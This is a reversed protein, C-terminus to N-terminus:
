RCTLMCVCSSDLEEVQITPHEIDFLEHLDQQLRLLRENDLQHGDTVVHVTLATETTSIAWIHLDHFGIIWEQRNLHERVAALDVNRPVADMSLDLSDRFLTWSSAFIVLAIVLSTAPDLWLWGTFLIVAGALAVGLSIAADAAMHVFAARINLDRKRDALFLLATATNIVVGVAAVIIVTRGAIPAPQFFREIAEWAIAGLAVLLLATSLASAMITSRKMGYTRKDTPPRSALYTAGWAILLAFVDSLNHGADALLALSDALLGYVVEVAVFVVNLAVGIAFARNYSAPAHSHSHGHGM